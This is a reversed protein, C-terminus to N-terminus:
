SSLWLKWKARFGKYKGLTKTELQYADLRILRGSFKRSGLLQYADLRILRGSPNEPAWFNILTRSALFCIHIYNQKNIRFAARARNAKTVGVVARSCRSTESRVAFCM